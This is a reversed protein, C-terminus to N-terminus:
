STFCVLAVQGRLFSPWLSVAVRALVIPPLTALLPQSAHRLPVACITSLLLDSDLGEKTLKADKKVGVVSGLLLGVCIEIGVVEAGVGLGVWAGVLVGEQAVGLRNAMRLLVAM